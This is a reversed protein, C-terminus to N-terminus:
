QPTSGAPPAGPPPAGNAGNPVQGPQPGGPGTNGPKGANKIYDPMGEQFNKARPQEIIEPGSSTTKFFAFGIVAVLLIVAVVIAPTPIEKKM